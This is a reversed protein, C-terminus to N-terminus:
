RNAKGKGHAAGSKGHGRAARDEDDDDADAAREPRQANADAQEARRDEDGPHERGGEGFVPHADNQWAPGPKECQEAAAADAAAKRCEHYEAVEASRVAGFSEDGDEAGQLAETTDADDSEADDDRDAKAKAKGSAEATGDEVNQTQSETETEDTVSSVAAMAGGAVVLVALVALANVFLKRLM